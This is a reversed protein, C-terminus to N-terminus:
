QTTFFIKSFRIFNNIPNCVIARIRIPWLNIYKPWSNEYAMLIHSGHINIPWPNECAMSKSLEDMKLPWPNEYAM